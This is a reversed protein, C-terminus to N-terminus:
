QDIKQVGPQPTEHQRKGDDPGNEDDPPTDGEFSVPTPDVTILAHLGDGLSEIRYWQGELQITGTVEGPSQVLIISGKDQLCDGRGSTIIPPIISKALKSLSSNRM